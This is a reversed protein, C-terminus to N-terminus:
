LETIHGDFHRLIELRGNGVNNCCHFYIEHHSWWISVNEAISAMQAPFEGTGTFEGCLPWHRAAQSFNVPWRHIGWVFALSASSQHKRQDADSYVTSYVITLSTIQSAIARMIYHIYQVDQIMTLMLCPLSMDSTWRLLIVLVMETKNDCTGRPYYKLSIQHFNMLMVIVDYHARHSRLDGAERNNLWSNIWACILSFMLARRWQGKHTSNVPSRHIGQVFPWYRPFRKWKM